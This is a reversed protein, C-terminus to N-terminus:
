DRKIVVMESAQGSTSINFSALKKAEGELVNQSHGCHGTPEVELM